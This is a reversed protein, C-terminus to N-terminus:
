FQSFSEFKAVEEVKLAGSPLNLFQWAKRIDTLKEKTASQTLAFFGSDSIPQYQYEAEGGGSRYRYDIKPKKSVLVGRNVSFSSLKELAPLGKTRYLLALFGVLSDSAKHECIIKKGGSTGLQSLDIEVRIKKQERRGNPSSLVEHNPSHAPVTEPHQHSHSLGQLLKEIRSIEDEIEQVQGELQQIKAPIPALRSLTTPDDLTPHKILSVAQLRLKELKQKM